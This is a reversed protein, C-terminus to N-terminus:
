SSKTQHRYRTLAMIRHWLLQQSDIVMGVKEFEATVDTAVYEPFHSSEDLISGLWSFLRAKGSVQIFNRPEFIVVDKQAVRALEGIAKVLVERPLDHLGASIVCVDFSDTAFPLQTVDAVQWDIKLHPWLQQCFRVRAPALDTAVIREFGYQYLDVAQWGAGTAVELVTTNNGANSVLKSILRRYQSFKDTHDTFLPDAYVAQIHNAYDRGTIRTVLKHYATKGLVLPFKIVWIHNSELKTM